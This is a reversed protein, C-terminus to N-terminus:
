RRSTSTITLVKSRNGTLKSTSKIVIKFRAREGAVKPTYKFTHTGAKYNKVTVWTRGRKEQLAAKDNVTFKDSYTTGVTASRRGTTFGKIKGVKRSVKFTTKKATGSYKSTGLFKVTVKHNGKRLEPLRIRASGNKLSTTKYTRGDVYITVKGYPTRGATATVELRTKHKLYPDIVKLSLKPKAKKVTVVAYDSSGQAAASGSYKFRIKHKGVALSNKLKLTVKQTGAKAAVKATGVKKKGLYATVTGGTPVLSNVKVTTKASTGYATSKKSATVTSSGKPIKVAVTAGQMTISTAKISFGSVYHTLTEGQKLTALFSLNSSGSESPKGERAYTGTDNNTDSSNETLSYVRIGPGFRFGPLENNLGSSLYFANSESLTGSRYEIFVKQGTTPLYFFAGRRGSLQSMPALNVTQSGVITHLANHPLVGLKLQYAIDLAPISGYTPSVTAAMPSYMGFYPVQASRYVSELNSHGLSFNHGIEHVVTQLTADNIVSRGGSTLNPGIEAVGLASNQKGQTDKCDGTMVVLHTRSGAKYGTRKAAEAWIKDIANHTELACLTSRNLTSTYSATKVVKFGTVKNYTQSRWYDGAESILEQARTATPPKPESTKSTSPLALYVKHNGVNAPSPAVNSTQILETVHASEASSSALQQAQAETLPEQSQSAPRSPLNKVSVQVTVDAGSEVSTLLSGQDTLPLTTDGVVIGHLTKEHGTAPNSAHESLASHDSTQPARYDVIMKILTGSVVATDNGHPPAEAAHAPLGLAVVLMLASPALILQRVRRLTTM